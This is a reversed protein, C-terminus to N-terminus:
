PNSTSAVIVAVINIGGTPGSYITHGGKIKGMQAANLNEKSIISKNKKKM